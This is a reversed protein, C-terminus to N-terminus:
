KQMEPVPLIIGNGQRGFLPYDNPINGTDITKIRYRCENRQEDSLTKRGYFTVPIWADYLKLAEDRKGLYLLIAIQYWEKLGLGVISKAVNNEENLAVLLKEPMDCKELLPIFYNGIAQADEQALHVVEQESMGESIVHSYQIECPPDYVAHFAGTPLQKRVPIGQIYAAIKNVEAYTYSVNYRVDISNTGRLKTISIRIEQNCDNVRRLLCNKRKKRFNHQLLIDTLASIYKESVDNLQM